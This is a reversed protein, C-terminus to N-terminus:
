LFAPLNRPRHALIKFVRFHNCFILSCFRASGSKVDNLLRDISEFRFITKVFVTCNEM